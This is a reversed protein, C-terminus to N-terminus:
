PTNMMLSIKHTADLSMYGSIEYRHLRQLQALSSKQTERMYHLLSGAAKHAIPQDDVGFGKLSHTRFHDTLIKYGYNGEYVWEEIPTINFCDLGDPLNNKM